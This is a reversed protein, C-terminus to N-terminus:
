RRTLSRFSPTTHTQPIKGGGGPGGGRHPKKKKKRGPVPAQAVPFLFLTPLSASCRTKKKQQQTTLLHVQTAFYRPKVLSHITILGLPSLSLTIILLTLDNFFHIMFFFTMCQGWKKM